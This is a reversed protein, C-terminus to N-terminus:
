AHIMRIRRDQNLCERQILKLEFFSLPDLYLEPSQKMNMLEEKNDTIEKRTQEVTQDLLMLPNRFFMSVDREISKEFLEYQQLFRTAIVESIEEYGETEVFQKYKKYILSKNQSLGSLLKGASKLLFQSPTFRLLINTNEWEIGSTMRDADRRWDDIIKFDCALQLREEEYLGNFSECMEDIYKQVEHFESSCEEIWAQLIDYYNSRATEKLYTEVRKNMEEDLVIHIKAFDSDEKIFESCGQIIEPIQNLLESKVEEKFHRYSKTMMRAKSVELDEVQHLAGSLKTVMEENWNISHELGNERELWTSVLYTIMKRIYFLLNVTRQAEPSEKLYNSQFFRNLDRIQSHRDYHSSYAFVDVNPIYPKVSAIIGDILHVAEEEDYVSDMKNILFHIPTYPMSDNWQQLLQLEQESLPTNANLVFLIGDASKTWESVQNSNQIAPADILTLQNKQLFDSDVKVHMSRQYQFGEIAREPSLKEIDTPTIAVIEPNPDYDIMVFSTNEKPLTHHNLIFNIVDTKGSESSGVLLLNYTDKKISNTMWTINNELKLDQKEVWQQVAEALEKTEEYGHSQHAIEILLKHAKQITSDEITGAYMENWAIIASSASLATVRDSVKIWNVLLKPIIASVEKMLYTGNIFIFYSEEYMRSLHRWPHVQSKDLNQIVKNIVQIWPIHHPTEKYSNWLATSLLEFSQPHEKALIQLGEEFYSPDIESTYGKEVYSTLVGYWPTSNLRIGEKLALEIASSWDENEEFFARALRTVNLYDPNLGVTEKIIQSAAERKGREIFLSFLQLSIETHLTLDDTIIGKYIDEATPLLGLEYYADAMNKKAWPGLENQINEWKFIAAEYDKYQFYLEGQAFRIESLNPVDKNQEELYIEGLVQIPAKNRDDNLFTEYYVKEILKETNM